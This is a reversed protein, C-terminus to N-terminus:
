KICFFYLLEKEPYSNAHSSANKFGNPNNIWGWLKKIIIVCFTSDYLVYKLLKFNIQFILENLLLSLYKQFYFSILNFNQSFIKYERQFRQYELYDWMKLWNIKRETLPEKSPKHWSPRLLHKRYFWNLFHFQWKCSVTWKFM